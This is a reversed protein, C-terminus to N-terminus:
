FNPHMTYRRSTLSMPINNSNTCYSTNYQMLFYMKGLINVDSQYASVWPWTTGAVDWTCVMYKTTHFKKCIKSKQKIVFILSAFNQTRMAVQYLKCAIQM